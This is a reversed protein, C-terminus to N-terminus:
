DHSLGAWLKLEAHLGEYALAGGRRTSILRIDERNLEPILDSSSSFALDVLANREETDSVLDAKTILVSVQKTNVYGMKRSVELVNRYKDIAAYRQNPTSLESADLLFGLYDAEKMIELNSAASDSDAAMEFVEGSVDPLLLNVRKNHTNRFSIHLFRPDPSPLTREIDPMQGACKVRSLHCRKEFGIITKSGSFSLGGVPGVLAQVYPSILLSTKGVNPLGALMILRTFGTARIANAEDLSLYEGRWLPLGEASVDASEIPPNDM